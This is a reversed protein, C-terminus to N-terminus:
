DSCDVGVFRSDDILFCKLNVRSVDERRSGISSRAILVKEGLYAYHTPVNKLVVLSDPHDAQLKKWQKRFDHIPETAPLAGFYKVADDSTMKLFRRVGSDRDFSFGNSLLLDYTHTAAWYSYLSSYILGVALLAGALRVLVRHRFRCIFVSRTRSGYAALGLATACLSGAMFVRTYAIGLSWMCMWLFLFIVFPIMKKRIHKVMLFPMFMAPTLALVSVFLSAPGISALISHLSALFGDLGNVKGLAFRIVELGFASYIPTALISLARHPLRLNYLSKFDNYDNWYYADPWVRDLPPPPSLVFFPNGLFISNLFPIFFLIGILFVLATLLSFFALIAVPRLKNKSLSYKKACWFSSYFILYVSFPLSLLSLSLTSLRMSIAMLQIAVAFFALLICVLGNRRRLQHAYMLSAFIVVEMLLVYSDHKGSLGISWLDPLSLAILVFFLSFVVNKSRSFVLSALISLAMSISLLRSLICLHWDGTTQIFFADYFSAFSDSRLFFGLSYYQSISLDGLAAIQLSDYLYQNLQDQHGVPLTLRYSYAFFLLAGCTILWVKLISLSTAQKKITTSLLHAKDGINFYCNRIVQRFSANPRLSSDRAAEESAFINLGLAMLSIVIASVSGELSAITVGLAHAFLNLAGYLFFLTAYALSLCYCREALTNQGGHIGGKLLLFYIRGFALLSLLSSIAVIATFM